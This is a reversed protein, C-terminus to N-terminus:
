SSTKSITMNITENPDKRSINEKSRVSLTVTKREIQKQLGFLKGNSQQLIYILQFNRNIMISRKKTEEDIEPLPFPLRISKREIHNENEPLLCEKYRLVSKSYVCINTIV